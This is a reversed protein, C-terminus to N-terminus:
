LSASSLFSPLLRFSVPCSATRARTSRLAEHPCNGAPPPFLQWGQTPFWQQRRVPRRAAAKRSPIRKLAWDQLEQALM